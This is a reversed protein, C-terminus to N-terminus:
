SAQGMAADMLFKAAARLLNDPGGYSTIYWELSAPKEIAVQGLTKNKFVGIPVVVSAATERNLMAYIQEVPLKKDITQMTQKGISSGAKQMPTNGASASQSNRNQLRNQTQSQQTAPAASQMNNNGTPRQQSVSQQMTQQPMMQGMGPMKQATTQMPIMNQVPQGSPMNTQAMQQNQMEQVQAAQMVDDPTPIYSEIGYQGPIDNVSITETEDLMVDAPNLLEEDMYTGDPMPMNPSGVMLNPDLPADTIEPDLDGETDAFQLGFGADALARGVAATEALEVFKNGFQEDVTLYKQAMANSIFSDEADNRSLYVKAEVIAMQDTLKLIKKVIKGEPYKLRFWLKRYVVDLYYKGAQGEKQIIRMYRRPDFGEVKNLNQIEAVEDYMGSVTNMILESM